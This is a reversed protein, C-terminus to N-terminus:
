GQPEGLERGAIRKGDVSLRGHGSAGIGIFPLVATEGEASEVYASLAASVVATKTRATCRALRDVRDLLDAELLITTRRITM